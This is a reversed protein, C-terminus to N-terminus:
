SAGFSLRFSALVRPHTVASWFGAVGLESSKLFVAALPILVILALYIVSYGLALSFGPLVSHKRFFFDKRPPSINVPQALASM